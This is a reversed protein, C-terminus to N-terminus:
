MNTKKERKSFLSLWVCLTNIPLPHFQRSEVSIVFCYESGFEVAGGVTLPLSIWGMLQLAVGDMEKEVNSICTTMSDRGNSGREVENDGEVFGRRRVTLPDVRPANYEAYEIRSNQPLTARTKLSCKEYV